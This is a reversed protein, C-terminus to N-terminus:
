NCIQSLIDPPVQLGFTEVKKMDACAADKKGTRFEARGRYLYAEVFNPNLEIAKSYDRIAEEYRKQENFISGRNVYASAYGPDIEIAKNFDTLAEEYKKENMSLAGRNSWAMSFDPNLEIAKTYDKRAEDNRNLAWLNNARAFFADSFDPKLEIAKSCDKVSEEYSKKNFYVLGRSYYADAFGPKLEIIKNYDMFAEEYKNNDLYVKGRNFYAKIFKNDLEITKNFDALAEPYKKENLFYTGRKYFVMAASQDQKIVDDWLTLDNQWVDAKAFTKMSFFLAFASLALTAALKMNRNWLLDVGIGALYFIGISPIYSYRDAMITGGVPLLQLVLFVTVAFFGISFFLKKSRRLSYFALVLLVITFFLYIYYIAPVNGGPMSPYGYYAMLKIPFVLKVLYSIFGYGAFVIRQPLSYLDLFQTTDSSRQAIVAVVGLTIALFFFPVKEVLSKLNIKRGKLHDTLMLVLPLSAAMAKSLLSLLFMLIAILFFKKQFDKLYKMYYIWSALFFFTYLLDKLEAAWAVSEVHLPHVGFLLAAVLAIGYKESLLFIAYFVLATNMLHLLINVAHYGTPDLGFLKYEIAHVLITLPHYNGMVYQSFIAKLDISHVLVNDKIYANDDWALFANDLVPLYIVFSIALIIVLALYIKWNEPTTPKTVKLPKKSVTPVHKQTKKSKM